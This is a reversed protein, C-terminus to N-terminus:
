NVDPQAGGPNRLASVGTRRGMTERFTGSAICLESWDGVGSPVLTSWCPHGYRRTNQAVVILTFRPPTRKPSQPPACRLTPAGLPPQLLESGMISGHDCWRFDRAVCLSTCLSPRTTSTPLPSCRPWCHLIFAPAGLLGPGIIGVGVLRRWLGRLVWRKVVGVSPVGERAREM